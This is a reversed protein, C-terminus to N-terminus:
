IRAGPVGGNDTWVSVNITKGTGQARYAYFGFGYIKGSYQNNFKEAYKYFYYNTGGSTFYGHGPLLGATLNYVTVNDTILLNTCTDKGGVVVYDLYTITDHGHPNYAHLTTNYTGASLYQIQPNQATSTSPVGGEFSWDWGTPVQLSKDQYNVYGGQPIFPRLHWDKLNGSGEFKAIPPRGIVKVFKQVSKTNNGAPNATTLSVDYKGAVNYKTNANQTWLMQDVSGPLNWEWWVPTNTSKDLITTPDGEYTVMQTTVERSIKIDDLYWTHADVGTYKFAIYVTQGAYSSLDLVTQVWSDTVSTPSWIETFTSTDQSTTSILVRNKGYYSPYDNYSWFTLKYNYGSTLSIGPSVLWGIENVTSTGYNHYASKLGNPSINKSTSSAWKVGDNEKDIIVWGTPPWSGEFNEYFVNELGAFDATPAQFPNITLQINPRKSNVTGTNASPDSKGTWQEHMNTASTYYCNSPANINGTTWVKTLIM